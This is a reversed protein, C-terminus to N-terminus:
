VNVINKHTFTIKDQKLCSRDFKVRMKTGIYSWSPALSNDHTSPPRISKNSM